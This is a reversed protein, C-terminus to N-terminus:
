AARANGLQLLQWSYWQRALKQRRKPWAAACVHQREPVASGRQHCIRGPQGAMDPKRLQTVKGIVATGRPVVVMGDVLVPDAVRFSVPDGAKASKSSLPAAITLRLPTGDRLVIRAKQPAVWKVKRHFRTPVNFKIVKAVTKDTKAGTPVGATVESDSM